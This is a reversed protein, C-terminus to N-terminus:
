PAASPVRPMPLVLKYSALKWVGGVRAFGFAGTVVAKDYEILADLSAGTQDPNQRSSTIHLVRRYVGLLGRRSQELDRLEQQSVAKQFVSAAETWVLDSHGDRLQELIKEADERLEAPAKVREERREQSGEIKAVEPPMDISLGLLKWRGEDWHFSINGTTPGKEYEIQLDVRATRGGPGRVVETRTVSEIEIFKGMTRRMEAMSEGFPEGLVLEQFRPSAQDYVKAVDGDRLAVLIQEAQPRLDPLEENRRQQFWVIAAIWGFVLVFAVVVSRVLVRSKRTKPMVPLHSLSEGLKDELQHLGEGLKGEVRSLGDGLRTEIEGLKGPLTPRRGGRRPPAGSAPLSSSSFQVDISGSTSHPPEGGPDDGAAPLRDDAAPLGDGSFRVDISGSDAPDRDRDRGKGAPRKPDDNALPDIIGDPRPRPV